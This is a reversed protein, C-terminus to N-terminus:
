SIGIKEAAAAHAEDAYEARLEALRARLDTDTMVAYVTPCDEPGTAGPNCLTCSEGLRLPCKPVARVVSRRLGSALGRRDARGLASLGENTLPTSVAGRAEEVM